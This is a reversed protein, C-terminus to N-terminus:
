TSTIAGRLSCAQTQAQTRTDAHNNTTTGALQNSELQVLSVSSWTIMTSVPWNHRAHRKAIKLDRELGLLLMGQPTECSTVRLSRLRLGSEKETLM